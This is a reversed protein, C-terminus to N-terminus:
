SPDYVMTQSRDSSLAEWTASNGVSITVPVGPIVQGASNVQQATYATTDNQTDMIQLVGSYTNSIFARHKVNSPAPTSSSSGGCYVLILVFILAFILVAVRKM